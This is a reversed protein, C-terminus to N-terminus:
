PRPRRTPWVWVGNRGHAWGVLYAVAAVTPSLALASLAIVIAVETM